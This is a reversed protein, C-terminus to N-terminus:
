VINQKENIDLNDHLKTVLNYILSLSENPISQFYNQTM